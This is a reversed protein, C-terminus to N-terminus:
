PDTSHVLERAIKSTGFLTAPPLGLHRRSRRRESPRYHLRQRRNLTLRAMRRSRSPQGGPFLEAWAEDSELSPAASFTKNYRYTRSLTYSPTRGPDQCIAPRTAEFYRGAEFFLVAALIVLCIAPLQKWGRYAPLIRDLQLLPHSDDPGEDLKNDFQDMISQLNCFQHFQFEQTLSAGHLLAVSDYFCIFTFTVVVENTVTINARQM